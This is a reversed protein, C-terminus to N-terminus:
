PGAHITGANNEYARRAEPGATRCPDDDPVAGSAWIVAEVAGPTPHPDLPHPTNSLAVLLDMEARLDIASGAPGTGHWAFAGAAGARVDAFLTLCPPIDRRDLGLKAAALRLNDRTNRGSRIPASGGLLLDHRGCSDATVAALVRGMDSLLLQGTGMRVTWQLKMTDPANFRESLDHANWLVIAVSAGGAPSHVRLTRGEPVSTTWYWGGPITEHRLVAAGPITPVALPHTRTSRVQAESRLADYRARHQEPTQQDLPVADLDIM